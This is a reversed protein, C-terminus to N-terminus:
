SLPPGDTRDHLIQYGPNRTEHRLGADHDFEACTLGLRAEAIEPWQEAAPPIESAVNAHAGADVHDGIHLPGSQPRSGGPADQHDVCEFVDLGWCPHDVLHV